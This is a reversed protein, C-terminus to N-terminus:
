DVIEYVLRMPVGRRKIDVHVHRAERLQAYIALVRDPSTLAVDNISEVLDGNQIGLRAFNSYPRIAYVRVGVPMSDHIAPVIRCTESRPLSDHHIETLLAARVVRYHLHRVEVIGNGPLVGWTSTSIAAVPPPPVRRMALARASHSMHEHLLPPGAFFGLLLVALLVKRPSPWFLGVPILTMRWWWLLRRAPPSTRAIRPRARAGARLKALARAAGHWKTLPV